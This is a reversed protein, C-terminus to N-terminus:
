WCISCLSQIVKYRHTVSSWFYKYWDQIKFKSVAAQSREQIMFIDARGVQLEEFSRLWISITLSHQIGSLCIHNKKETLLPHIKKTLRNYTWIKPWFARAHDWPSEWRMLWDHVTIFKSVLIFDKNQLAIEDTNSLAPHRSYASNNVSTM